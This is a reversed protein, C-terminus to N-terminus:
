IRKKQTNFIATLKENVWPLHLIVYGVVAAFALWSARSKTLPLIILISVLCAIALTKLGLKTKKNLAFVLPVPAIVALYIAYPGPNGFAGTIDFNEQLSEIFGASQGIGWLASILGTVMIVLYVPFFISKEAEENAVQAKLLVYLTAAVVMLFFYQHQFNHQRLLLSNVTAYFLLAGIFIDLWTITFTTKFKYNMYYIAYAVIPIFSFFLVLFRKSSIFPDVFVKFQIISCLFLIGLLYGWITSKQKM